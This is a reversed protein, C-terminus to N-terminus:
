YKGLKLLLKTVIALFLSLHNTGVIIKFNKKCMIYYILSFASYRDMSVFKSTM